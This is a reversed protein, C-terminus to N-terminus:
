RESPPRRLEEPVDEGDLSGLFAVLDAIEADTLNLPRLVTEQHHGTAVAGEMTSYFRVVAELTAFQGQHMYPATRAVNRLSPTRFEGWTEPGARLTVLREAASGARADSFPSAANFPHERV